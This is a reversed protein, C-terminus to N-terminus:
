LTWFDFLAGKRLKVSGKQEMVPIPPESDKGYITSGMVLLTELVKLILFWFNCFYVHLSQM